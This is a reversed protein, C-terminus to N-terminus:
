EEADEAHQIQFGNDAQTLSRSKVYFVDIALIGRNKTLGHFFLLSDKRLTENTIELRQKELLGEPKRSSHKRQALVPLMSNMQFPKNQLVDKVNQRNGKNEAVAVPFV